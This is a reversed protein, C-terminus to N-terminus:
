RQTLIQNASSLPARTTLALRIITARSNTRQQASTRVANAAPRACASGFGSAGGCGFLPEAWTCGTGAGLVDPVLAEVEVCTLEEVEVCTLGGTEVEMRLTGRLGTVTAAGRALARRYLELHASRQVARCRLENPASSARGASAAGCPLM